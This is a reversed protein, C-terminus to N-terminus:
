ENERDIVLDIDTLAILKHYENSKTQFMIPAEVTKTEDAITLEIKGKILYVTEPDAHKHNASISGQKRTIFSSKGCDLILGRDDKKIVRVKQLEM